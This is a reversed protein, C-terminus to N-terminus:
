EPESERSQFHSPAAPSTPPPPSPEPWTTQVLVSPATSRPVAWGLSLGQRAHQRGSWSPLSPEKPAPPRPPTRELRPAPHVTGPSLPFRPRQKASRERSCQQTVAMMHVACVRRGTYVCAGAWACVCVGACACVCVQGHVCMCRGVSVCIGAGHVYVCRGMFVCVGVWTCVCTQRHVCKCRSMYM